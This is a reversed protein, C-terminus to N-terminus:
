NIKIDYPLRAQVGKVNSMNQIMEFYHYNDGLQSKLMVDDLDGSLKSMIQSFPDKQKPLNLIRYSDLKALKAAIEIAKDIGGLEDVLGIRKADVGCWVRGQGISDVQAVTMKRGTAVHGIFTQYVYEVDTQYFEKESASLPRSVSGFDSHKNTKVYDFSIGLKNNFFGKMNPVLGFVGISGTITNPEAVIKDAACAIYYGGSAAVDSMSVVVPKKAMKALVVERWIIESALASGGPSNVRLVIAKVNDDLRAERIAKSIGESGITKEDGEGSKIEGVAYIIAIKNKSFKEAKRPAKSYKTLGIFNPKDDGSNGLKTNLEALMEDKYFLKDVFKYKLADDAKRISMSDAISTLDNISIKRSDSIGKLLHNWIGNL